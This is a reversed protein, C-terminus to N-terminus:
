KTTQNPATMTAPRLKNTAFYTNWDAVTWNPHQNIQLYVMVEGNQFVPRYTVEESQKAAFFNIAEQETAFNFTGAPISYSSKIPQSADLALAGETTLSLASIQAFASGSAAFAIAILLMKITAKM